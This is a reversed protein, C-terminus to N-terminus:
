TLSLLVISQLAAQPVQLLSLSCMPHRQQQHPAHHMAGLARFTEAMTSSAM